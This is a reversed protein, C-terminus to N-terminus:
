SRSALGRHKKETKDTKGGESLIDRKKRIITGKGTEEERCNSSYLEM